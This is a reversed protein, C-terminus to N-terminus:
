GNRFCKRKRCLTAEPDNLGLLADRRRGHQMQDATNTLGIVLRDLAVLVLLHQQVIQGRSVLLGYLREVGGAAAIELQIIGGPALEARGLLALGIGLAADVDILDAALVDIHEVLDQFCLRLVHGDGHVDAAAVEAGGPGGGAAILRYRLDQEAM